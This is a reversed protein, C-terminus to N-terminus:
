LSKSRKFMKVLAFLVGAFLWIIWMELFSFNHPRHRLQADLTTTILSFTLADFFFAAIKPVACERDRREAPIGALYSAFIWVGLCAFAAVWVQEPWLLRALACAGLVGLASTLCDWLLYWLARPRSNVTSQASLFQNEISSSAYVRM